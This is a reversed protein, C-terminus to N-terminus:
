LQDRYRITTCFCVRVNFLLCLTLLGLIDVFSVVIDLLFQLLFNLLRGLKELFVALLRLGKLLGDQPHRGRLGTLSLSFGGTQDLGLGVGRLVRCSLGAGGVAVGPGGLPGRGASAGMCRSRPGSGRNSDLDDLFRVETRHLLELVLGTQEPLTGVGFNDLAVAVDFGVVLTEEEKFADTAARKEFVEVDTERLGFFGALHHGSSGDERDQSLEELGQHVELLPLDHM